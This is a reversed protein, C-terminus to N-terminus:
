KHRSVKGEKADVLEPFLYHMRQNLETASIATPLKHTRPAAMPSSPQSISVSPLLTNNMETDGSGETTVKPEGDDDEDDDYVRREKPQVPTGDEKLDRKTKELLSKLLSESHQATSQNTPTNTASGTPTLMSLIAEDGSATDVALAQEIVPDLSLRVKMEKQGWVAVLSSTAEGAPVSVDTKTSETQLTKIFFLEDETKSPRNESENVTTEGGSVRVRTKRQNVIAVLINSQDSSSTSPNSVIQHNPTSTLMNLAVKRTKPAAMKLNEKDSTQETNSTAEMCPPLLPKRHKSKQTVSTKQVLPQMHLVSLRPSRRIRPAAEPSPSSALMTFTDEDPEEESQSVVPIMMAASHHAKSTVGREQPFTLPSSEALLMTTM